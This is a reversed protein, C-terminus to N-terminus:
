RPGAAHVAYVGGQFLGWSRGEDWDDEVMSAWREITGTWRTTRGLTSLLRIAKALDAATITSRTMDPLFALDHITTIADYRRQEPSPVKREPTLYDDQTTM